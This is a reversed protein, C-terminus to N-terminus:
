LLSLHVHNTHDTNPDGYAGSYSKWGIAPLWVQKFWIVYLIGLRDANRVLFAALNNGYLRNEGQAVGGFGKKQSSFDCARGKPHEYPGGPRYCSVYWNFGAKQTEKLAHLTRATICGSTTPDNQNCSQAPWSGDRNRPAQAAIPSTANVFGGTSAGGALRLAKETEAKKKAMVELQQQEETVAQDIAAKARNAQDLAANLERMKRNDHQALADLSEARDLFDEPSASNLLMMMPGIRGMRYANAAVQGIEPQLVEIQKEVKQLELTLQLQRKRSNDVATKAEVYGRSTAEMVDRLLPNEGEDGPTTPASTPEAHATGPAVALGILVAVATVLTVPLSQRRRQFSTM